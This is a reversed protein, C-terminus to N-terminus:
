TGSLERRGETGAMENVRDRGPMEHWDGDKGYGILGDGVGRGDGSSLVGDARKMLDRRCKREKGLLVALAGLAALLLVGVGLGVGLGVRKKAEGM